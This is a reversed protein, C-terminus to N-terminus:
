RHSRHLRRRPYLHRDPHHPPSPHRGRGIRYEPPSAAWHAVESAPRAYPQQFDLLRPSEDTMLGQSNLPYFRRTAEDPSPGERIMQDRMIDAIGLGSTGAGYIVVRQASADCQNPVDFAAPHVGAADAPQCDNTETHANLEEM